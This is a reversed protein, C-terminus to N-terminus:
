AEKAMTQVNESALRELAELNTLQLGGMEDRAVLSRAQLETLTKVLIAVDLGLLAAVADVCLNDSIREPDHGQAQNLRSVASLFAAVRHIPSTANAAVLKRRRDAFEREIAHQQRESVSSALTHLNSLVSRPWVSVRSEAMATITQTHHTLFGLGLVTGPFALELIDPPQEGDGEVTICLIGSEIRWVVSKEQGERCLVDGPALNFCDPKPLFRDIALVDTPPSVSVFSTSDEIM